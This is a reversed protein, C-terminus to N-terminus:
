SIVFRSRCTEYMQRHLSMAKIKEDVGDRFTQYKEKETKLPMKVRPSSSPRRQFNLDTEGNQIDDNTLPRSHMIRAVIGRHDTNPIWDNHRDTVSIEADTLTSSSTVIRDIINGQGPQSSRCTWDNVRTRDPNDSWLDHGNTLDLFQLYQRRAEVGGSRREFLSITANLDGALTWSTTTSRCLSTMDKWFDSTDGEDGPNWPAYAAILRHFGNANLAYISFTSTSSPPVMTAQVANVLSIAFLLTALLLIPKMISSRSRCPIKRSRRYGSYDKLFNFVRVEGHTDINMAEVNSLPPNESGRDRQQGSTRPKKRLEWGEPINTLSASTRRLPITPNPLGPPASPVISSATTPITAIKPAPQILNTASSSVISTFDQRSTKIKEELEKQNVELAQKIKNADELQRVDTIGILTIRLNMQQSKVEALNQELMNGYNQAILAHQTNLVREQLTSSIQLQTALHQTQNAKENDTVRRSLDQFAKQLSEAGKHFDNRLNGTTKFAGSTNVDFLLRPALMNPCLKKFFEVFATQANPSLVESTAAWTTMHFVITEPERPPIRIGALTSEGENRFHSRLWKSILEEITYTDYETPVGIIALEFPNQIEIQRGRFVRIPQEFGKIIHTNNDAIEDVHKPHALTLFVAGKYPYVNSVTWGKTNAWKLIKDTAAVNGTKSDDTVDLFRIFMRKDSGAKCPTWTVEWNSNHAALTAMWLVLLDVRPEKESARTTNSLNLHIYCSTSWDKRAASLPKVTVPALSPNSERIKAIATQM